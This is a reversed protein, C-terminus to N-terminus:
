HIRLVAYCAYFQTAQRQRGGRTESRLKGSRRLNVAFNRMNRVSYAYIRLEPPLATQGGGPTQANLAYYAYNHLIEAYFHGM